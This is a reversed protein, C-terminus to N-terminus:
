RGDTKRVGIARASGDQSSLSLGSGSRPPEQLAKWHGNCRRHQVGVATAGSQRLSLARGCRRGETRSNWKTSLRPGFEEAPDVLNDRCGRVLPPLSGSDKSGSDGAQLHGAGSEAIMAVCSRSILQLPAHELSVGSHESASTLASVVSIWGCRVPRWRRGALALREQRQARSGRQDSQPSARPVGSTAASGLRSSYRAPM